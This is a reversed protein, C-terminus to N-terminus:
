FQRTMDGGEPPRRIWYSAARRDRARRMPDRGFRQMLLGTPVIGAVYVMALLVPSTVRNLLLALRTWARNPLHLLAPHVVAVCAIVGAAGLAWWRVPLHHRAPAIALVTLAGPSSSAL